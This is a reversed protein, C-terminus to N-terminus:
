EFLKINPYVFVFSLTGSKHGLRNTYMGIKKLWDTNNKLFNVDSSLGYWNIQNYLSTLFVEIVFPDVQAGMDDPLLFGINRIAVDLLHKSDNINKIAIQLRRVFNKDLGKTYVNYVDQTDYRIYSVDDNWLSDHIEPTTRSRGKNIIYSGDINKIYTGKVRVYQSRVQSRTEVAKANSILQSEIISMKDYLGNFMFEKTKQNLDLSFLFNTAAEFNMNNEFVNSMWNLVISNKQAKAAIVLFEKQTIEYKEIKNSDFGDLNIKNKNSNNEYSKKELSKNKDNVKTENDTKMSLSVLPIVAIPVLIGIFLIKKKM